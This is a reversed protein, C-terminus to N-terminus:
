GSFAITGRCREGSAPNRAKFVLQDTGALNALKREVDFSGSPGTTTGTGKASVAGNHKMRWHWTQGNQNSDVEGEFEIRGDDTKAKVKWDTGRSCSGERRIENDDDGAQAPAAVLVLATVLPALAGIVIRTRRAPHTM